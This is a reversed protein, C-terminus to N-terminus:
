ARNSAPQGLVADSLVRVGEDAARVAGQHEDRPGELRVGVPDVFADVGEDAGALAVAGVLAVPLAGRVRLLDHQHREARGEGFLGGEVARAHAGEGTQGAPVDHELDAPVHGAGVQAVYGASTSTCLQTGCSAMRRCASRNTVWAAGAAALLSQGGRRRHDGYRLGDVLEAVGVHELGEADGPM